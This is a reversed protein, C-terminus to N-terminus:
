PNFIQFQSPDSLPRPLDFSFLKNASIVASASPQALLPSHLGSRKGGRWMPRAPDSAWSILGASSTAAVAAAQPLTHIRHSISHPILSRRRDVTSSLITLCRAVFPALFVRPFGVIARATVFSTWYRKISPKTM